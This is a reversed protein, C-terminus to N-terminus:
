VLEQKQGKRLLLLFAFVTLFAGILMIYGGATSQSPFAGLGRAVIWGRSEGPLGLLLFLGLDFGWHLGIPLWLNRGAAYFSWGFGVGAAIVALWWAWTLEFPALIHLSAFLVGSVLVALTRARPGGGAVGEIGQMLVGRFAIEEVVAAQTAAALALLTPWPGPYLLRDISFLGAADAILAALLLSAVPVAFGIPLWRLGKPRLGLAAFSGYRTVRYLIALAALVALVEVFRSVVMGAIRTVAPNYPWDSANRSFIGEILSRVLLDALLIVALQALMTQLATRRLAGGDAALEGTIQTKTV